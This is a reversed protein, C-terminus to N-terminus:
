PNDDLRRSARLRTPWFRTPLFDTMRSRMENDLGVQLVLWFGAVGLPIGAAFFGVVPRLGATLWFAAAGLFILVCGAQLAPRLWDLMERWSLNFDTKTRWLGHAFSLSSTALLSSGILAPFGWRPASWLALCVFVTGELFYVVKLTRFEKTAGLLSTHCRQVAMVVCWLGLLVDNSVDWSVKGRTWVAIFRQNCVAFIVAATVAIVGTLITVSRFRRLMLDREGRVHMEALPPTSFDMIRWVAQCVLLYPRTCVSWVAAAAFGLAPVLVITQSAQIMQSGLTFLFVEQGFRFVSRFRKWDARGWKGKAPLLRRWGCAAASLGTSTIIGGLQGWLLAFVGAGARFAMWQVLFNILLGAVQALNGLDTRQYAWLVSTFTRGAFSLGLLLCQGLMLWRFETPGASALGPLREPVLVLVAAALAVLAGQVFGVYFGTQVLSGFEDSERQDKHDVLLRALAGSLGFDLLALYGAVQSTVAWLGLRDLPLFHLALPVSALTFVTNVGLLLYGSALAQVYHKLRSMLLNRDALLRV